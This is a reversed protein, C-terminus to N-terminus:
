LFTINKASEPHILPAPPGQICNLNTEMDFKDKSLMVIKYGNYALSLAIQSSLYLYGHILKKKVKNITAPQCPEGLPDRGDM